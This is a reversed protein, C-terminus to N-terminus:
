NGLDSAACAEEVFPAYFEILRRSRPLHFLLETEMCRPGVTQSQFREGLANTFIINEDKLKKSHNRDILVLQPPYRYTTSGDTKDIMLAWALVSTGEQVFVLRKATSLAAAYPFDPALAAMLKLNWEPKIYAPFDAIDAVLSWEPLHVARWYDTDDVLSLDPDRIPTIDEKRFGLLPPTLTARGTAEVYWDNANAMNEYRWHGENAEVRNWMVAHATQDLAVSPEARKALNGVNLYNRYTALVKRDEYCKSLLESRYSSCHEGRPTWIRLRLNEVAHQKGLENILPAPLHKSLLIEWAYFARWGESIEREMLQVSFDFLHDAKDSLLTNLKNAFRILKDNAM